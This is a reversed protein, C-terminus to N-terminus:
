PVRKDIECESNRQITEQASAPKHNKPHQIPTGHASTLPSALNGIEGKSHVSLASKSETPRGM